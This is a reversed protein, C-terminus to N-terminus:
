LGDSVELDAFDGTALNNTKAEGRMTTVVMPNGNNDIVGAAGSEALDPAYSMRNPLSVEGASNGIAQGFRTFWAVRGDPLSVGSGRVGGFELVVAQSPSDTDLGSIFYTKDAVVYVGGETSAILAPQEPYRFFGSVPDSLHPLMPRTFVVYEGSIGVLLSHHSVLMSCPPMPVLGATELRERHDDVKTIAMSGGILAGQSYLVGGNATSAYVRLPRTDSSTVRIAQGDAVRVIMLEAGSEEGDDGLATVAVKYTGAALAGDIHNLAFAPSPVGWSKVSNGDTRLSDEIGSLYAWGNFAVGALEGLGAVAGIEKATDTEASYCRIAMGDVCVVRGPLAVALRMDGAELVRVSDARLDLQGGETPDLNVLERVFGKPLREPKAVNNMGSAWGEIRILPAPM